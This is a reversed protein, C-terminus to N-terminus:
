SIAIVKNRGQHKANQMARNARELSQEFSEGFQVHVVGFSGRIPLILDDFQLVPLQHRLEDAREIASDLDLNPMFIVFNDHECRCLIESDRMENQMIKSSERLVQDGVSYGYDTNIRSFNDINYLAICHSQNPRSSKVVQEVLTKFLWRTPLQTLTDLMALEKLTNNQQVLAPVAVAFYSTAATIYLAFQYTIAQDTVDFIGVGFAILATIVLLSTSAYATRETFVIWVQPISVFFVFYAVGPHDIARDLLLIGIITLLAVVLKGIFQKKSHRMGRDHDYFVDIWPVKYTSLKPLFLCLFPVLVMVGVLDGLWWAFWGDKVINTYNETAFEWVLLGCFAALAASLAYIVLLGVIKTPINKQVFHSLWHRTALGGLGYSVSHALSFLLSTALLTPDFGKEFFASFNFSEVWIALFIPIFARKGFVLFAAMSVGAPLYWLSIFESYALIASAHFAGLWLFFILIYASKRLLNIRGKM